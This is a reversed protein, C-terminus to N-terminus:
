SQTQIFDEISKTVIEPQEQPSQHGAGEVIVLKAGKIGAAVTKAHSVPLSADSDGHIVLTPVKIQKYEPYAKRHIVGEVSRWVGRHLNMMWFDSWLAMAETDNRIEKYFIPIIEGVLFRTPGFFRIFLTLIKSKLSKNEVDAEADTSVLSLSKLLEPRKNAVRMGAFGGMSFGVWHVPGLKEQKTIIDLLEIADDANQDPDIITAGPPVESLGQGRHDFAIVRYNKSFHPIQYMWMGTSFLLGHSFVITGKAKLNGNDIVHLSVNSKPLHVM